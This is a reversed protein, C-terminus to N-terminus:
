LMCAFVIVRNATSHSTAPASKNHSFLVVPQSIAAPQQQNQTQSFYQQSSAAFM